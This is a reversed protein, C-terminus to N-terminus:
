NNKIFNKCDECECKKDCREHNRKCECYNKLCNSKKCNCNVRKTFGTIITLNHKSEEENDSNDPTFYLQNKQELILQKYLKLAKLDLANQNKFTNEIKERIDELYIDNKPTKLNINGIKKNKFVGNNQNIIKKTGEDKYFRHIPTSKFNCRKIKKNILFIQGNQEKNLNDNVNNKLFLNFNENISKQNVLFLNKNHPSDINSTKNEILNNRPSESKSNFIVNHNKLPIESM